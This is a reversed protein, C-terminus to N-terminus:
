MSPNGDRDESAGDMTSEIDVKGKLLGKVKTIIFAAGELDLFGLEM